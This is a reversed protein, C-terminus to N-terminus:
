GSKRPVEHLVSEDNRGGKHVLGALHSPIM